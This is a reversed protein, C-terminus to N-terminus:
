DSTYPDLVSALASSLVVTEINKYKSLLEQHRKFDIKLSYTQGEFHSPAILEIGQGLKLARVAARFRDQAQTLEPYRRGKFYRRLRRSKEGRDMDTDGLMRKIADEELLDHISIADRHSIGKLWELLERQRNLGLGLDSFMMTLRDTTAHDEMEAIQLAVPLAVDGQILARQLVPNMKAVLRLKKLMKLNVFVGLKGAERCLAEHEFYLQDLLRIVSAQEVFNLDRHLANDIIATRIRHELPADPSIIKVVVKKLGIMRCATLRKFGSVITYSTTVGRGHCVIPPSIVGVLKISAVMAESPGDTSVRYRQDELDIQGIDVSDFTHSYEM